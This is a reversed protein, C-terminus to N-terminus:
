RKPADRREKLADLTNFIADRYGLSHGNCYKDQAKVTAKCDEIARERASQLEALIKATQVEIWKYPIGLTIALKRAREPLDTGSLM